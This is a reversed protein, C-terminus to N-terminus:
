GTDRGGGSGEGYTGEGHVRADVVDIASFAGDEEVGEAATNERVNAVFAGVEDDGHDLAGDDNVNAGFWTFNGAHRSRLIQM